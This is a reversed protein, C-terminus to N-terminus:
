TARTPVGRVGHEGILSTLLLGLLVVVVLALLM